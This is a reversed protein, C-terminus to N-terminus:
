QFDKDIEQKKKNIHYEKIIKINRMLNNEIGILNADDFPIELHKKSYTVFSGKSSDYLEALEKTYIVCDMKIIFKGSSTYEISFKCSDYNWVAYDVESKHM